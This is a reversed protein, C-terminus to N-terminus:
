IANFRKFFNMGVVFYSNRKGFRNLNNGISNQSFLSLLSSPTKGGEGAAVEALDVAGVLVVEEGAEAFDEGGVEVVQPFM